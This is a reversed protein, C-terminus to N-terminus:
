NWDFHISIDLNKPNVLVIAVLKANRINSRM